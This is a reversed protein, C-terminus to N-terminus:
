DFGIEIAFYYGAILFAVVPISLALFILFLMAYGLGWGLSNSNVLGLWLWNYMIGYFWVFGLITTGIGLTLGALKGM